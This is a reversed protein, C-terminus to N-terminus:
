IKEDFINCTMNESKRKAQLKGWLLVEGHTSKLNKLNHLHHWMECFMAYLSTRIHSEHIKSVITKYKHTNSVIQTKNQVMFPM